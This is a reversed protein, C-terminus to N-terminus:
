PRRDGHPDHPAEARELAISRIMEVYRRELDSLKRFLTLSVLLFTVVLVYLLLDAGRGVGLTEAVRTLTNPFLVALAGAIVALGGLFRWLARYSARRSGRFALFAAFAIAGLLLLKILPLTM